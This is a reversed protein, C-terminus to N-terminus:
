AARELLAEIWGIVEAQAPIRSTAATEREGGVLVAEGGLRRVAAFGKEDTLDDGVFVPLTGAMPAEAMMAIVARGKDSGPLTLEYVMKGPQVDFGTRDALVYALAECAPQAGPAERFHIAAGFDKTEILVGPVRDALAQLEDVIGDLEAPRRPMIRRGGVTEIELGHSGAVSLPIGPFYGRITSLTRGSVIALRGPMAAALAAVAKRTRDAVVVDDPRTSIPVLTGDFDLFISRQALDFDASPPQLAPLLMHRLM